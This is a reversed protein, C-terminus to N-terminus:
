YPFDLLKVRLHPRMYNLSVKFEQSKRGKEGVASSIPEM